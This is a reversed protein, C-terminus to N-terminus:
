KIRNRLETKIARALPGRYSSANSLFYRVVSSGTDLGYNDNVTNLENMAMLYPKAAYGVVGWDKMILKAIQSISMTTLDPIAVEPKPTPKKM